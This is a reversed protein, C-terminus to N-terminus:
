FICGFTDGKVWQVVAREVFIPRDLDPINIHLEMVLAPYVMVPVRVQCGVLSLDLIVGVQNNVGSQDFLMLM